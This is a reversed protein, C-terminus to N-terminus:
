AGVLQANYGFSQVQALLAATSTADPNFAVLLLHEKGPNFRPAVVGDIQRMSEELAKRQQESLSDNIHILIDSVNM